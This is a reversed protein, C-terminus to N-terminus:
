SPRVPPCDDTGERLPGVLDGALSEAVLFGRHVFFKARYDIVYNRGESDQQLLLIIAEATTKGQGGRRDYSLIDGMWSRSRIEECAGYGEMVELVGRRVM